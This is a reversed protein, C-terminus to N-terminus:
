ITGELTTPFDFDYVDSLDSVCYIESPTHPLDWDRIEKRQEWSELGYFENSSKGVYLQDIIYNVMDGYPLELNERVNIRQSRFTGVFHAFFALAARFETELTPNHTPIAMIQELDRKTADSIATYRSAQGYSVPTQNYVSLEAEKKVNADLTAQWSTSDLVTGPPIHSWDVRVPMKAIDIKDVLEGTFPDQAQTCTRIHCSIDGSEAIIFMIAWSATGFVEDFTDWDTGSPAPSSGPHTHCWIRMYQFPQLGEDIRESQYIPLHDPEFEVTCSSVSQPIFFLRTVLLPNDADDTVGLCGVETDPTNQLFWLLQCWCAPTFVLPREFDPALIAPKKSAKPTTPTNHPTTM